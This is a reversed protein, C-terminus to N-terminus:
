SALTTFVCFTSFYWQGNTRYVTFQIRMKIHLSTPISLVLESQGGIRSHCLKSWDFIDSFDIYQFREEYKKWEDDGRM